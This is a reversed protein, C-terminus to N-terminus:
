SRNEQKRRSIMEEIMVTVDKCIIGEYQDTPMSSQQCEGFDAADLYTITTEKDELYCYRM